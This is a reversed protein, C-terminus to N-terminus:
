SNHVRVCVCVCILVRCKDKPVLITFWHFAGLIIGQNFQSGDTGQTIVGRQVEVLDSGQRSRVKWTLCTHLTVNGLIIKKQTHWWNKKIQVEYPSLLFYCLTVASWYMTFIYLNYLYLPELYHFNYNLLCISTCIGECWTCAGVTMCRGMYKCTSICLYMCRYTDLYVYM